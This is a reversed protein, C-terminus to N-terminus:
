AGAERSSGDIGTMNSVSNYITTTSLYWRSVKNAEEFLAATLTELEQEITKKDKEVIARQAKEEALAAKL